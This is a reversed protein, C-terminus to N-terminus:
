SPSISTAHAANWLEAHEALTADHHSAVQVRLEDHQDPSITLQPGGTAPRPTLEGTERRNKLWRKLTALSIEFTKVVESRPMGRDVAAVVRTRLDVSYAQM